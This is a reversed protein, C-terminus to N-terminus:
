SIREIDKNLLTLTALNILLSNLLTLILLEAKILSSAVCEIWVSAVLKFLLFKSKICAILLVLDDLELWSM